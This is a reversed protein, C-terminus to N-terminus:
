ECRKFVTVFAIAKDKCHSLSIKCEIGKPCGNLFNIFPVGKKNHAVEIECFKPINKCNMQSLAKYVAEKACFRAAIHMAPVGKSFCYDLENETFVGLKSALERNKVYKEFRSVNEIDTGVAIDEINNM